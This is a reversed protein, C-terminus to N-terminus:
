ARTMEILYDQASGLLRDTRLPTGTVRRITRAYRRMWENPVLWTDCVRYVIPWILNCSFIATPRLGLSKFTRIWRPATWDNNAHWRVNAARRRASLQARLYPSSANSSSFVLRGGHAIVRTLEAAAEAPPDLLHLTKHCLVVDFAGAAFPLKVASAQGVGHGALRARSLAPMSLDVGTVRCGQRQIATCYHGAGCGVDLVRDATTWTVEKLLAHDLEEQVFTPNSPTRWERWEYRARGVIRAVFGERTAPRRIVSEAPASSAPM